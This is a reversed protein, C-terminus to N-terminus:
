KHYDHWAELDNQRVEIVRVIERLAKMSFGRSALVQFTLLDISAEGDSGVVHVHPKGLHGLEKTRIEFRFKNTQLITPSVQMSHMYCSYIEVGM